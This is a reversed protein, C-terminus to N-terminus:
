PCSPFAQAWGLKLVCQEAVGGACAGYDCLQGDQTCGAGIRPRPEPCGAPSFCSWVVTGADDKRGCNCQGEPYACDLSQVPCAQGSLADAYSSPCAGADCPALPLAQNSWGGLQGYCKDLFDCYPNPASGYECVWDVPMCTDGNAPQIAPCVPGAQSTGADTSVHPGAESQAPGADSDDHGPVSSDAVTGMERAADARDDQIAGVIGTETAADSAQGPEVHGGCAALTAIASALRKLLNRGRASDGRHIGDKEHRVMM